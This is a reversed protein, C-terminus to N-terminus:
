DTKQGYEECEKQLLKNYEYIINSVLICFEKNRMDKELERRLSRAKVMVRLYYKTKKEDM